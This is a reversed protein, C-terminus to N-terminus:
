KCICDDLAIFFGRKLISDIQARKSYQPPYAPLAGFTSTRQSAYEPIRAARRPQQASPDRIAAGGEFRIRFSRGVSSTDGSARITRPKLTFGAHHQKCTDTM